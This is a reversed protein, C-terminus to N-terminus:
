SKLAFAGGIALAIALLILARPDLLPIDGATANGITTAAAATNNLVVPDTSNSTVQATNTITGTANDNVRVVFTMTFSQTPLLGGVTCRVDNTTVPPFCDAATGPPEVVSVFTTNAPIPDIITIGSAFESGINTVTVNYTINTGPSATTPDATKTLRLDAGTSETVTMATSSSNDATNPDPTSSSVTATNTITGTANANARVTLTFTAMAQDAFSAISCNATGTAGPAPPLTCTFAPGSNQAFSDFTTGSPITDSLTFNVAALPGDNRVTIVYTAIENPGVFALEGVPLAKSVSVDADTPPVESVPTQVTSSNNTTNPDTPSSTITATNTITQGVADPNARVVITFSRNTQASLSTLNCEVDGQQTVQPPACGGATGGGNLFATVFTTNAPVFDSILVNTALESGVNAAVITYTIDSGATVVAPSATKTISLDAGPNTVTVSATASHDNSDPDPTTTSATVTNTITGTANADLRVDLRFNASADDPLSAISCNVTGTAGQAPTTCGFSPGNIQTLSEFTTQAPIVDSMTVNAAALPGSNTVVIGFTAVEGRGVFPRDGNGKSVALDATTPPTPSVPTVATSSNNATNPDAQTMTGTATNTITQGAAGSDVRVVISFSRTGGQPSLSNLNCEVDGNQTVQPPACGGATGGGILIASVFTTNAPVFDSILINTIFDSGVNTVAITYTIDEGALVVAPSATKTVSLDGQGQVEIASLLFLSTLALWTRM